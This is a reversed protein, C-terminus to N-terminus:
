THSRCARATVRWHPGDGRAASATGFPRASRVAQGIERWVVVPYTIVRGSVPLSDAVRGALSTPHARECPLACRCRSEMVRVGWILDERWREQAQWGDARYFRDARENGTLGWLFAETFGYGALRSRAHAVLARRPLRLFCVGIRWGGLGSTCM